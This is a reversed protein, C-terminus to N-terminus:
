LQIKKKDNGQNQTEIKPFYKTHDNENNKL